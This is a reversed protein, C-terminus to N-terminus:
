PMKRESVLVALARELLDGLSGDAEVSTVIAGDFWFRVFHAQPSPKFLELDFHELARDIVNALKAAEEVAKLADDIEEDTWSQDTFHDRLVGVAEQPRM